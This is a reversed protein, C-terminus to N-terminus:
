AVVEVINMKSMIYLAIITAVAGMVITGTVKNM